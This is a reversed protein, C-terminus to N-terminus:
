MRYYLPTGRCVNSETNIGLQCVDNLGWTYVHGYNTLAMVHYGCSYDIKLIKYAVYFGAGYYIIILLFM